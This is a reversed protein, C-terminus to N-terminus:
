SAQNFLVKAFHRKGKKLTLGRSPISFKQQPNTAKIGEISIGGEGIVRRADNKSLCLNTLMLLDLLPLSQQEVVFTPMEDPAKKEQFIRIFALEAKQAASPSHFFSVIERALAMKADRPHATGTKIQRALTETENLPVRTLYTFYKWVLTDPVSMLKGYMENPNETLAIYNHYTKSMKEKGDLGELLPVMLVNQPCQDYREQLQRGMLLNFKQDTGGIEVDTRLMVSDYGQLFPYLIEPITIEDGRKVRQKFEARHLLQTVSTHASIRLLDALKIKKYWESNYRLEVQKTNIITSAQALYSKMNGSIEKESLPPRLKSRGSPDGIRATFDGILFIISHGLKQFEKLKLLVVAHGLHLVNGTPDIGFKIRLKKGSALKKELDKKVIVEEVGRTLLDSHPM